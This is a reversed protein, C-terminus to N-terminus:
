HAAPITIRGVSPLFRGVSAAYSRYATGHLAILYPEEVLRVQLEVAVILAVGAVVGAPNPVLMATGAVYAIMASYIPNRIWRFTGSTVLVTREEPDVGIRLSEGMSAQSWLLVAVASLAVVLGAGTLWSSHLTRKAGFVLEAVPAAVLASHVGVVAM